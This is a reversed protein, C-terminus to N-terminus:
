KAAAKKAAAATASKKAPAAVNSAAQLNAEASALYEEATKLFSRAHNRQELTAM